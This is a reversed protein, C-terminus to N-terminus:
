PTSKVINNYKLVKESAFEYELWIRRTIFELLVAEKFWKKMTVLINIQHIQLVSVWILIGTVCWHNCSKMTKRLYCVLIVMNNHRGYMMTNKLSSFIYIHILIQKQADHDKSILIKRVFNVRYVGSYDITFHTWKIQKHFPEVDQNYRMNALGCVVLCICFHMNIPTFGCM